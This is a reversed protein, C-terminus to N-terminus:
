KEEGHPAVPIVQIVPKGLFRAAGQPGHVCTWAPKGGPGISAVAFEAWRDDLHATLTGDAARDIQVPTDDGIVLRQEQMEAASPMGFAGDVPDISVRLGNSLLSKYGAPVWARPRWSLLASAGPNRAAVAQVAAPPAAVAAGAVDRAPVRTAALALLVASLPFVPRFKM